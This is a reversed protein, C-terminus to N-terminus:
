KQGVTVEVLRQSGDPWQGISRILYVPNSSAPNTCPAPLCTAAVRYQGTSYPVWATPTLQYWQTCNLAQPCPPAVCANEPCIPDTTGLATLAMLSTNNAATTGPPMVMNILQQQGWVAGAEALYMANISARDGGSLQTDSWVSDLVLIGLLTLLTVVTVAVILSYGRQQHNRM